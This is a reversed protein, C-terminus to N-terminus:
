NGCRLVGGADLGWVYVCTRYGYVRRVGVSRVSVGRQCKMGASRVRVWAPLPSLIQEAIALSGRAFVARRVLSIARSVPIGVMAMM